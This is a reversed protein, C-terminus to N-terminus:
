RESEIKTIVGDETYVTLHDKYVWRICTKDAYETIYRRQPRGKAALLGLESMGVSIEGDQALSIENTSLGRAQLEAELPKLDDKRMTGGEQVTKQYKFALQADTLAHFRDPADVSHQLSACGVLM